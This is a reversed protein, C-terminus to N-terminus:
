KMVEEMKIVKGSSNFVVELLIEEKNNLIMEFGKMKTNEFASIKETKFGDFKDKLTKVVSEPLDKFSIESETELWVGKNDFSASIEKGNNNFKAKWENAEENEWKVSKAVPYKKTFEKTVNEPVNKQGFVHVASLSFALCLIFINKM